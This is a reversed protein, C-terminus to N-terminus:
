LTRLEKPLMFTVNEQIQSDTVERLKAGNNTLFDIVENLLVEPASAGATIGIVKKKELISLDLDNKNDILKSEIKNKLALEVLRRSNSSNESGIVILYDCINLISKVADQRNQTAYCIDKKAPSQIDPFKKTILNIIEQTDDISLTTQTVYAVNKNNITLSDVDQKNEVLYIHGKKSQYQGLTGEIEPHGKHGILIVDANNKSYKHVEMHVKTVLPCTADFIKLNKKEAEHKIKISVGHASYILISKNPVDSIDEIFKVGRQELNKIVFKNHVVEHKVYIPAGFNEIAKEVIDVAREVGACFGRPTALVLETKNLNNM